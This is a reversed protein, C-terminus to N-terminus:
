AQNWGSSPHIRLPRKQKKPVREWTMKATHLKQLVWLIGRSTILIMPVIQTNTAFVISQIRTEYSNNNVKDTGADASFCPPFCKEKTVDPVLLPSPTTISPPPQLVCVGIVRTTKRKEQWRAEEGTQQHLKMNMLVKCVFRWFTDSHM